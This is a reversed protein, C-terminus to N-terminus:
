ERAAIKAKAKAGKLRQVAQALQTELRKKEAAMADLKRRITKASSRVGEMIRDDELTLRWLDVRKDKQLWRALKELSPDGVPLPLAPADDGATLRGADPSDIHLRGESATLRFGAATDRDLSFAATRSLSHVNEKGATRPVFVESETLEGDPAWYAGIGYDGGPLVIKAEMLLNREGAWLPLLWVEKREGEELRHIRAGLVGSRGRDLFSVRGSADRHRNVYLAIVIVIVLLVILTTTSKPHLFLFEVPKGIAIDILTEM